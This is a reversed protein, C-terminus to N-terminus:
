IRVATSKSEQESKPYPGYQNEGPQSDLILIIFFVLTGVAPIMNILLWWGSKGTDHLRRFTVASSPILVGLLYLGTLMGLVTGDSLNYIMFDLISLALLIIDSFLTFLWYERRRARGSFGAYNKLAKLYWGM